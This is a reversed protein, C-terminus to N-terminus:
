SGMSGRRMWRRKWVWALAFLGYLTLFPAIPRVGAPSLALVLGADVLFIGALAKRVHVAAGHVSGPGGPTPDHRGAARMGAAMAEVLLAALLAGNLWALPEGPRLLVLVIPVALTGIARSRLRAPDAPADELESVRTVMAIYLGLIGAGGLLPPDALVSATGAAATAGILFNLARCLGMLLSGAVPVRKVGADYLIAAVLLASAPLLVGAAAAVALAGAGLLVCLLVAHTVPVRGSPIPRRPATGADKSRDLLDNAAMGLWYLLVSTLVTAAIL